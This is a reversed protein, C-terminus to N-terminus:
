AMDVRENLRMRVWVSTWMSNKRGRRAVKWEGLQWLAYILESSRNIREFLQFKRTQAKCLCASQHSECMQIIEVM